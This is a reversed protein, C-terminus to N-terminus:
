LKVISLQDLVYELQTSPVPKTLPDSLMLTSELYKFTALKNHIVDKIYCTKILMHKSRKFNGGGNYLIM